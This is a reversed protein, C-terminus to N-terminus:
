RRGTAARRGALWGRISPWLLWGIALLLPAGVVAYIIGRLTVDTRREGREAAATARQATDMRASVGTLDLRRLQEVARFAETVVVPGDPLLMRRGPNGALTVRYVFRNAAYYASLDMPRGEARRIRDRWAAEVTDVSEAFHRVFLIDFDYYQYSVLEVFRSTQALGYREILFAM